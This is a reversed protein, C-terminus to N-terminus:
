ILSVHFQICVSYFLANLHNERFHVIGLQSVNNRISSRIARKYYIIDNLGTSSLLECNLFRKCINFPQTKKVSSFNASYNIQHVWGSYSKQESAGNSYTKGEIQEFISSNTGYVWMFNLFGFLCYILLLYLKNQLWLTSCLGPNVHLKTENCM